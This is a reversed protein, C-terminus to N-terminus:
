LINRIIVTIAPENAVPSRGNLVELGDITGDMDTDSKRPDAGWQYEKINFLQDGDPDGNPDANVLNYKFSWGDSWGKGYTDFLLPNLSWSVELLNTLGDVDQDLQADNGDFINFNYTLEQSDTMGDKDTDDDTNEIRIQLAGYEVSNDSLLTKYAINYIGSQKAIGEIRNNTANFTLGPPLKGSVIVSHGLGSNVLFSKYLTSNSAYVEPTKLINGSNLGNGSEVWQTDYLDINTGLVIEVVNPLGDVDNDVLTQTNMYLVRVALATKFLDNDWSGNSLNKNVLYQQGNEYATTVFSDVLLSKGYSLAEVAIATATTNNDESNDGFAGSPRQSKALWQVAKGTNTAVTTGWEYNSNKYALLVLATPIVAAPLTLDKNISYGWGSGLQAAGSPLTWTETANQKSKLFNLSEKFYLSEGAKQLALIAIATDSSSWKSERLAGWSPTLTPKGEDLKLQTSANKITDILSVPVIGAEQLALLQRAASDATLPEANALWTIGRNYVVGGVSYKQLTQLVTATVRIKELETKGWSGDGNQNQVLYALGGNRSSELQASSPAAFSNKTIFLLIVILSLRQMRNRRPGYHQEEITAFKEKRRM